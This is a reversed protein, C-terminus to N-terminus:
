RCSSSRSRSSRWGPSSGASPCRARTGWSSARPTHTTGSSGSAPAACPAASSRWRRPRASTRSTSTRPGTRGGTVYCFLTLAFGTIIMCGAALGDLGDTINCANSTGVVVFWEFVLFALVGVIGFSALGITSDKLFPPYLALLTGRGNSVAYWALASLARSLSSPSASCRRASPSVGEVEPDDAEQLRRRLGGGRLGRDPARRAVGPRQRAPVLPARLRAAVRRPLERGDDAHRAERGERTPRSSPRITKTVDEGVKHARALPDRAERLALALAFATLTAMVMRFSIYGVLRWGAADLLQALMLGRGRPPLRRAGARGRGLRRTAARSSSSTAPACSRRCGASRTTANELQVVSALGGEVAGEAASAALDGVSVLMSIGARAAVFGVERHLDEARDGLELMDGLVLVRRAHGHLGRARTRERARVRPNANYSDDIITVRGVEIRELRRRCAKLRSVGPPRRRAPHRARPLRGTGALLNQVNHLGLLPSTIERGELRFTTGGKHVV